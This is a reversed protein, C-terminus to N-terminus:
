VTVSDMVMMMADAPLPEAMVKSFCQFRGASVQTYSLGQSLPPTNCQGSGNSGCVVACGDSRLLATHFGGASVQTYSLGCAVTTLGEHFWPTRPRGVAVPAARWPTNKEMLKPFRQIRWSTLRQYDMLFLGKSSITKGNKSTFFSNILGGIWSQSHKFSIGWTFGFSGSKHNDFRSGQVLFDQYAKSSACM